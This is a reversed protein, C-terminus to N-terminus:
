VESTDGLRANCVKRGDDGDFPMPLIARVEGTQCAVSSLWCREDLYSVRRTARLIWTSLEDAKDCAFVYCGGAEM